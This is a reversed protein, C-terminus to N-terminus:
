VHRAHRTHQIRVDVGADIEEPLRGGLAVIEALLVELAGQAKIWRRQCALLTDLPWVPVYWGFDEAGVDGAPVGAARHQNCLWEALSKGYIGPNTEADERPKVVFASSEFDLM